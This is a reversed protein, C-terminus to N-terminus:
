CVALVALGATVEQGLASIESGCTTSEVGRGKRTARGPDQEPTPPDCPAPFLWSPQLWASWTLAPFERRGGRDM